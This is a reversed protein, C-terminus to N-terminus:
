RDFGDFGIEAFNGFHLIAPSRPSRRLQITSVRSRHCSNMFREASAPASPTSEIETTGMAIHSRPMPEAIPWCGATVSFITLQTMSGGVIGTITLSVGFILRHPGSAASPAALFFASGIGNREDVGDILM